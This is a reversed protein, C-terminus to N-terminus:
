LMLETICPHPHSPPLVAPRDGEESVMEVIATLATGDTWLATRAPSNGEVEM